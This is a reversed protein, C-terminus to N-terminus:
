VSINWKQILYNIVQNATVEDHYANYVLVESFDSVIPTSSGSTSLAGIVITSEGSSFTGIATLIESTLNKGVTVQGISVNFRASWVCGSSTKLITSNKLTGNSAAINTITAGFRGRSALTSTGLRIATRLDSGSGAGGLTNAVLYYSYRQEFTSFNSDFLADGNFSVAKRGNVDSKFIPRSGETAQSLNPKNSAKNNWQEVTENNSAEVDPEVSNLVGENADLWLELNPLDTPAFPIVSGGISPRGILNGLGLGLGLRPM